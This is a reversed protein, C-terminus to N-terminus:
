QVGELLGAADLAKRTLVGLEQQKAVMDHYTAVAFEPIGDVAQAWQRAKDETFRRSGMAHGSPRHTVRWNDAWPETDGGTEAIEQTVAFVKGSWAVWALKPGTGTAVMELPLEKKTDDGM